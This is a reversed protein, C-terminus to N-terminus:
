KFLCDEVPEPPRANCALHCVAIASSNSAPCTWTHTRGTNFCTGHCRTGASTEFSTVTSTRADAARHRSKADASTGIFVVCAITAFTLGAFGFAKM